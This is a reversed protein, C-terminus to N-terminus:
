VEQDGRNPDVAGLNTKTEIKLRLSGSLASSLGTLKNTHFSNRVRFDMLTSVDSIVNTSRVKFAVFIM